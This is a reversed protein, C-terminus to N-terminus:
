LRTSGFNSIWELRSWLLSGLSFLTSRNHIDNSEKPYDSNSTISSCPTSSRLFKDYVQVSGGIERKIAELAEKNIKHGSVDTVYFMGTAKDGKTSVEAMSVSLGYERFVRTVNSLLGLRDETTVDIRLGQSARREVAAILCQTVKHRETETDLTCGYRHRVYYEQTAISRKSSIAAHFVRYQMDTLACVTDFLLKPRDRSIINVVSYGKENCSEISVRTCSCSIGHDQTCSIGGRDVSGWSGHHMMYDEIDALMLQHLRRETHTQPSTVTLRVLHKAGTIHSNQRAELITRLQGRIHNLRSHDIIPGGTEQDEVDIICAARHNHTWVIATTVHCGLDALMASVESLLGPQDTITIEITTYKCEPKVERGPCAQPEITRRKTCLAKVTKWGPNVFHCCNRASSCFYYQQIHHILTHDTIKNGFKDTVHFVDMLWGGDSCIYSKSIILDLDTLMQVVELLIGDKNASDVKVLTCDKCADNDICVRPPNIREILSEFEPDVYPRYYCFGEM